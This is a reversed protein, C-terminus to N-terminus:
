MGRRNLVYPVTRMLIKADLWISWNAGYIYDIKVMEQMPIRASGFVQWLGTMGPRLALRRRHWGDILVDEDPVLPRPGVLSMEGRLVNLLQPLEDLSAQRLLRGVRTIRPDDSIKFLGVAENRDRLDDKLREAHQVMTRFKLMEFENGSRGIRRQRFFLPGRSDLKIAIAIACLLPMFFLLGAAALLMDVARKMRESSRSLGHGRVALLSIGDVEDFTSASGVVELLRPLVSVKVGLAKTLRIANLVHEQDHGDPAILVREVGHAPLLMALSDSRGLRPPGGPAEKFAGHDLAVRGIVTANVSTAMDLKAKIRTASGANGLVICREAPTARLAIQRALTRSLATLVFLCLAIGFIDRRGPHSELFLGGGFWTALTLSMSLQLLKPAEDLTTKKLVYQDRDYLGIAKGMLLAAPLSFLWAGPSFHVARQFLGLTIAVAVADAIALSWRFLADRRLVVRDASGEPFAAEAEINPKPALTPQEQGTARASAAAARQFRRTAAPSM